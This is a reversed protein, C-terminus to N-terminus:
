LMADDNNFRKDRPCDVHGDKTYNHFQACDRCWHQLLNRMGESNFVEETM